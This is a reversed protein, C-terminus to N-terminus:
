GVGLREPNMYLASTVQSSTQLNSLSCSCCPMGRQRAGHESIYLASVPPPAPKQRRTLYSKLALGPTFPSLIPLHGPNKILEQGSILGNNSWQQCHPAQSSPSRGSRRGGVTVGARRKELPTVWPEGIGSAM